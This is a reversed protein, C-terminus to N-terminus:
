SLLLWQSEKKKNKTKSTINSEKPYSITSNLTLTAKLPFVLLKRLQSISFPEPGQVYNSEEITEEVCLADSGKKYIQYQTQFAIFSNPPSQQMAPSLSVLRRFHAKEGKDELATFIVFNSLNTLIDVQKKLNAKM